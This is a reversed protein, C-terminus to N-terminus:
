LMAFAKESVRRGDILIVARHEGPMWRSTQGSSFPLYHMGQKAERSDRRLVRGAADMWRVEVSQASSAGSVDVSLFVEGGRVFNDGMSAQTVAGSPTVSTGLAYTEAAPEQQTAPSPVRAKEPGRDVGCATLASLSVAGLVILTKLAYGGPVVGTLTVPEIIEIVALNM